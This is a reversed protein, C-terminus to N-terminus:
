QSRFKAYVQEVESSSAFNGQRVEKERLSLIRADEEDIASVDQHQEIQLAAALLQEQDKDSWKEARSFVSKLLQNM